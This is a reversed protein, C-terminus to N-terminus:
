IHCFANNYKVHIRQPSFLECIQNMYQDRNHMLTIPPNAFSVM